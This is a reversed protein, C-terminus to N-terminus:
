SRTKRLRREAVFENLALDAQVEDLGMRVVDLEVDKAVRAVDDQWERVRSALQRYASRAITRSRGTEVDVTEIWGASVDPLEFAFASDILVLFVDHANNLLSLERLVDKVDDFLFDSIVPLMSTSRFYGALTTSLSGVRRLEQLGRQFQYADLCHVIHSKGTRPRIGGLHEFGQDFTVLGFPDQFFVASMGITAIARAVLAGIPKGNVGCRTSLSVDAIAAVTATSPQEFERVVLPSFNTLTSQPWDISSPRDGPQWDRLGQFDFGAGHASSRHEGMTVERMRKLILLEIETIDALSIYPAEGTGAENHLERM